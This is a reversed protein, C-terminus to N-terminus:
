NCASVELEFERLLSGIYNFLINRNLNFVLEAKLASIRQYCEIIGKETARKAMKALPGALDQNILLAQESTLKLVLADRLLLGLIDLFEQLEQHDAWPAKGPQGMSGLAQLAKQRALLPNERLALGPRGMCLRALLRLEPGQYREELLAMTHQERLPRFPVPTCRSRITAPLEAARPTCLILTSEGPPEELTKLFANAAQPNMTHAEKLLAVKRRGQLPKLALAEQLARVEDVRLM